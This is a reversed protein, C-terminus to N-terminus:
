PHPPRAVRRSALLAICTWHMVGQKWFVPVRALSIPRRVVIAAAPIGGPETGTWAPAGIPIARFLILHASHQSAAQAQVSENEFIRISTVRYAVRKFVPYPEAGRSMGLLRPRSTGAAVPPEIGRLVGDPKIPDGFWVRWSEYPWGPETGLSV